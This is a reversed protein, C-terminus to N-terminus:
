TEDKAPQRIANFRRQWLHDHAFNTSDSPVLASYFPPVLHQLKGIRNQDLGHKFGNLFRPSGARSRVNYLKAYRLRAKLRGYGIM